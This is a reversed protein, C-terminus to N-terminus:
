ERTLLAAKGPRPLTHAGENIEPTAACHRQQSATLEEILRHLACIASRPATSPPPHHPPRTAAMPPPTPTVKLQLWYGGGSVRNVRGSVRVTVRLSSILGSDSRPDPPQSPLTDSCPPLPHPTPYLCTPLTAPPTASHPPLTAPHCPTHRQTSAPQCPPLPHPATHLCPPLTAPPTASHPSLTAPLTASHPPLTAPPTASLQMGTQTQGKCNKTLIRCHKTGEGASNGFAM